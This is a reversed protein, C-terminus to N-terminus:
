ESTGQGCEKNGPTHALVSYDGLDLDSPLAVKSDYEGKDDTVLVGIARELGKANNKLIIEVRVKKCPDGGSSTITGKVGLNKTRLVEPAEGSLGPLSLQVKSPPATSPPTSSGTPPPSPTPGTPSGSPSTGPSPSSPPLLDSGKTSGAPWGVPDTPPEYNPQPKEPKESKDDLVRGAGGLDFRRYLYGDHVEVWAHAENHVFRAPIGLGLATITMAFARHRCVGKKSRAIDLYIGEGTSAIPDESEKFARFYEVLQKIIEHPRHATKDIKLEAVFTDVAKQVNAPLAAVKPLEHWDYASTLGAFAERPAAIELVLRASGSSDATIFFNDAGDREIKFPMAPSVHAKQVITGAVASPIRIAVGSKLELPLDVYFTDIGGTVVKEKGVDVTKRKPDRVFLKYDADVADLAVLRKFPALRPRFPDDYPLRDVRRPDRDPTFSTDAVASKPGYTPGKTDVPRGPDPATIKGSHTLLEAAFGGEITVGYESDTSPDVNIYEHLIPGDASASLPGVAVGLALVLLSLSRPRKM